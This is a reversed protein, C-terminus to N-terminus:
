QDRGQDTHDHRPDIVIHQSVQGTINVRYYTLINQHIFESFSGKGEHDDFSHIGLIDGREPFVDRMYIM